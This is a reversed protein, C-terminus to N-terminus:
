QQGVKPCGAVAPELVGLRAIRLPRGAAMLLYREAPDVAARLAEDTDPYVPPTEDVTTPVCPAAVPIKVTVTRIIPEPRPEQATKCGALLVAAAAIATLRTQTIM